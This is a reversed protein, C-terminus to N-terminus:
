ESFQGEMKRLPAVKFVKAIGRRADFRGSCM